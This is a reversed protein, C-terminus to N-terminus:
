IEIYDILILVIQLFSKYFLDLHYNRKQILKIYFLICLPNFNSEYIPISLSIGFLILINLNLIDM